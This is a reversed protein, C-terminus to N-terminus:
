REAPQQDPAAQETVPATTPAAEAAAKETPAEEALAENAKALEEVTVKKGEEAFKAFAPKNPALIMIMHRGDM